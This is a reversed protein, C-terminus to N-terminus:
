TSNFDPPSPTLPINAKFDQNEFITVKKKPTLYKSKERLFFFTRHGLLIKINLGFALELM